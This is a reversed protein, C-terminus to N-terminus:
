KITLGSDIDFIKIKSIDFYIDLLGNNQKYEGNIKIIIDNDFLYTHILYESGLLEVMNPKISIKPSPNKLNSPDFSFYEPRIGVKIKHENNLSNKANNLYGEILKLNTDEKVENVEKNKDKLKKIFEVLKYFCKFHKKKNITSVVKSGKTFIQNSSNELILDNTILSPDNVLKTLLSIRNLYFEHHIKNFNDDLSFEYGNNFIIKNDKYTAEIINMAPNGIFTAVFLNNPNNYVEMPEGIQKIFGKNMVVIKNAMTMAETQDHTVYITTAGVEKHIRVIESRMSSRLKADLNSLPEDMLFLKANRVIARGLAVRQMQGGSLEKPYRDLYQGLDLIDAADFVRKKIEEKDVHRIKLGFAINDYVNKNPYLAYSQFVMAIDRDKSPTYNCLKKDIFLEGSSIEELGAVMRLTTSKGCGSPGVLVVFDNKDIDLNFDFVAQVNNSYIKNINRLTVFSTLSEDILEGNNEKDIKKIENIDMKKNIDM